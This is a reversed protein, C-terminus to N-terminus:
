FGIVQDFNVKKFFFFTEANHLIRLFSENSVVFAFISCFINFDLPTMVVGKGMRTVIKPKGM